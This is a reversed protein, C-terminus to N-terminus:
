KLRSKQINANLLSFLHFKYSKLLEVYQPIFVSQCHCHCSSAVLEDDKAIHGQQSAIRKKDSQKGGQRCIAEYMNRRCGTSPQYCQTWKYIHEITAWIRAQSTRTMELNKQLSRWLNSEFRPWLKKSNQAVFNYAATNFIAVLHKPNNFFIKVAYPYHPPPPTIM